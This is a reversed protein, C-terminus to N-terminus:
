HRSRIECSVALCKSLRHVAQQPIHRQVNIAKCQTWPQQLRPTKMFCKQWGATSAPRLGYAPRPGGTPGALTAATGQVSRVPRGYALWIHSCLLRHADNRWRGHVDPETATGGSIYPKFEMGPTCLNSFYINLLYEKLWSRGKIYLQEVCKAHESDVAPRRSAPM